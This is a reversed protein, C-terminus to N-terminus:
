ERACHLWDIDFCFIHHYHRTFLLGDQNEIENKQENGSRRQKEVPGNAGETPHCVRNTINGSSSDSLHVYLQKHVTHRNSLRIRLGFNILGSDCFSSPEYYRLGCTSLYDSLVLKDANLCVEELTSPIQLHQPSFAFADTCQLSDSNSLM